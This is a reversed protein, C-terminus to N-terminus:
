PVLAAGWPLGGVHVRHDVNGTVVNVLSVDASTGNATYLTHGDASVAIGWPRNGVGDISGVQRRAQVDVVAVSGGRGTTVYLMKGDPSLVAGMPRVGTSTPSGEDIGIRGESAYAVADIVDVERGMECTVFATRGDRAFVIARPRPGTPVHAVVALRETDVVTVEGDQESTVLVAKGDPRVTVGEPEHGVGVKGHLVGSAADLVTLEATEENSVYMTRDDPSLDFSEPDQGGPLTAVLRRTSLEVIGIGDSARDPPPLTAPDVGPGAAPSGSLAVYLRQGDHSAKLGRPRKGVVIRGSVTARLPDVVVVDGGQEDSV